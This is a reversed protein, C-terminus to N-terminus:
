GVHRENREDAARMVANVYSGALALSMAPTPLRAYVAYDTPPGFLSTPAALGAYFAAWFPSVAMMDEM